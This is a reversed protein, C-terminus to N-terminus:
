NWAALLATEGHGNEVVAISAPWSRDITRLLRHAPLAEFHGIVNVILKILLDHPKFLSEM